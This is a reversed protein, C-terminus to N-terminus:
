LDAGLVITSSSSLLGGMGSCVAIEAGPVQRIAEGRLQRVAEILLFIGRMGPHNASLGGGDTNTPLPGDLDMGGDAAWSGATGRECFGLAELQLLVTITFSDYLQAVDVDSPSLGAQAFAREGSVRTPVDLINESQAVTMSGLASAAGLVVAPQKQLDRARDLSTMVLAGGGDSIVCCDLLHLPSAVMKSSLVDDVTIPDRYMALPNTSAHQRTSVAVSALQEPTADFEYLYRQAALAYEAVTSSGFPVEFQRPGKARGRTATGLRRGADSRQTSGYVILAVDCVGAAIALSAHEVFTEWASGGTFTSDVYTPRIDLYEALRVVHLLDIGDGCSFLGDVEGITLGADALAAHAADAHLQLATRDSVIGSRSEGVGAIAASRM